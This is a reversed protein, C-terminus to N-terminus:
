FKTIPICYVTIYIVMLIPKLKKFFLMDSISRFPNPTVLFPEQGAPDM